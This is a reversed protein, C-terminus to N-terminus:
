RGFLQRCDYNGVGANLVEVRDYGPLLKANLSRELIKSTTNNLPVGWGLTTSDGLLMIRYVGAPKTLSYEYDRLGQSNIQVDVGMLFAHSNPRHVFSLKPDAVPRKMQIAYKWMEMSFDKSHYFALRLMGELLLAVFFLAFILLALRSLLKRVGTAEPRRDSQAVQHEPQLKMDSDPKVETQLYSEM